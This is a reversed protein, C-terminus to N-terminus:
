RMEREIAEAGTALAHRARAARAPRHAAATLGRWLGPAREYGPEGPLIGDVEPTRWALMVIGALVLAGALTTVGLQVSLGRDIASHRVAWAGILGALVSGLPMAGFVATNCVALVRGRMRDPVLMQMAAMSSNFAWLWFVGCLVLMVAGAPMWRMAGFLLISVGGGVMSLPIFHHKPYWAPFWRLALGGLVAGIGMMALLLGYVTEDRHYVDSAFLPLMRLLPASLMAFVVMAVFVARPGRQLFVFEAAERLQRVPHGERAPAPADPTLAVALLVGFFSVTNIAFLATAGWVGMLVGGLAPGVARALNFQMGNLTIARTLEARPVLRPTLVQWAPVNFALATGHVLALGILVGPTALGRWAVVTLAAAIVMMVGQTVLFLKKRNVRDALLGGPIGLALMPGMQAVALYAMMLTAHPKGAAVWEPATAAQAVLWQLGVAEMWTGISSGFSAVWVRRYHRHRLVGLRSPRGTLGRDPADAPAAEARPAAGVARGGGPSR